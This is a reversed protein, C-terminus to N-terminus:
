ITVNVRKTINRIKEEEEALRQRHERCWKEIEGDAVGLARAIAVTETTVKRSFGTREELRARVGGAIAEMRDILADPHKM